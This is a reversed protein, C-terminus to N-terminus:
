WENADIRECEEEIVRKMDELDDHPIIGIARMLEKGPTGRRASQALTRALSVVKAQDGSGLQGMYGLLESQMTPDAHM